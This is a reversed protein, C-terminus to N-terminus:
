DAKVGTGTGTIRQLPSRKGRENRATGRRGRCGPTDTRPSPLEAHQRVKPAQVQARVRFVVHCRGHYTICPYAHPAEYMSCYKCRVGRFVRVGRFLMDGPRATPRVRGKPDAQRTKSPLEGAATRRKKLPAMAAAPVETDSAELVEAHRLDPPAGGERVPAGRLLRLLRAPSGADSTEDDIVGPCPDRLAWSPSQGWWAGAASTARADYMGGLVRPSHPSAAARRARARKEGRRASSERRSDRPLAAAREGAALAEDADDPARARKPRPPSRLATPYPGEGSTVPLPVPLPHMQVPRRCSAPAPAGAKAVIPRIAAYSSSQSPTLSLLLESDSSEDCTGDTPVGGGGGARTALAEDGSGAASAVARPGTQTSAPVAGFAQHRLRQSSRAVSLLGTLAEVTAIEQPDLGEPVRRWRSTLATRDCDRRTM